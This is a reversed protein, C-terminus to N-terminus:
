EIDYDPEEITKDGINRATQDHKYNETTEEDTYVLDDLVFGSNQTQHKEESQKEKERERYVADITGYELFASALESYKKIDFSSFNSTISKYMDNNEGDIFFNKMTQNLDRIGEGKRSMCFSVLNKIQESINLGNKELNEYLEDPGIKDAYEPSAEAGMGMAMEFVAQLTPRKMEILDSMVAQIDEKIEVLNNDKIMNFLSVIQSIGEQKKEDFNYETYTHAQSKYGLKKALDGFKRQAEENSWGWAGVEEQKYGLKSVLDDAFGTVNEGDYGIIKAKENQKRVNEIEDKPVLIYSDEDLSVNGEFVTDQSALVGIKNDKVSSGPLLVAYKCKSWSGYAHDGVEGNVAFHVTDRKRGYEYEYTQGKIKISDKNKVDSNSTSRVVDGQPIHDTKHVFILDDMSEFDSTHAELMLDDKELVVDIGHEELFELGEEFSMGLDKIRKDSDFKDRSSNFADTKDMIEIKLKDIDTGIKSSIEQAEVYSKYKKTKFFKQFFNPINKNDYLLRSSNKLEEEMKSLKSNLEDLETQQKEILVRKIDSIM